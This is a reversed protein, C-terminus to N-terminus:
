QWIGRKRLYRCKRCNKPRILGKLIYEKKEGITFIFSQGCRKCIITTDGPKMYDYISM